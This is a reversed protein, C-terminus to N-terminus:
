VKKSGRPAALVQRGERQGPLDRGDEGDAGDLLTIDWRAGHPFARRTLLGQSLSALTLAGLGM